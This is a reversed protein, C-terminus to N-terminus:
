RARARGVVEFLPLGIAGVRFADCAPAVFRLVITMPRAARRRHALRPGWDVSCSLGLRSHSEWAPNWQRAAYPFEVAPRLAVPRACLSASAGEGIQARPRRAVAGGQLWAVWWEGVLLQASGEVAQKPLDRARM